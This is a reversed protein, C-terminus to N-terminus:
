HYKLVLPSGASLPQPLAVGDTNTGAALLNSLGIQVITTGNSKPLTVQFTAVNGNLLPGSGGSLICNEGVGLSICNLTKGASAAASGESPAAPWIIAGLSFQLSQANSSAAGSLSVTLTITTGSKINGPPGTVTLVPQAHLSVALAFLTVTWLKM